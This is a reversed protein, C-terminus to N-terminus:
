LKGCEFKMNMGYLYTYLNWSWNKPGWKLIHGSKPWFTLVFNTQKQKIKAVSAILKSFSITGDIKKRCNLM